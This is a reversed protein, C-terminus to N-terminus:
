CLRLLLHSSSPVLIKSSPDGVRYTSPLSQLMLAIFPSLDGMYLSRIWISLSFNQLISYLLIKYKWGLVFVGRIKVSKKLFAFCDLISRM